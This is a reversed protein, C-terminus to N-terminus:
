NSLVDASQAPGGLYIGGPRAHPFRAEKYLTQAQVEADAMAKELFKGDYGLKRWVSERPYTLHPALTERDKQSLPEALVPSLARVQPWPADETLTAAFGMLREINEIPAQDRLPALDCVFRFEFVGLGHLWRNAFDAERENETLVVNVIGVGKAEPGRLQDRIPKLRQKFWDAFAWHTFSLYSEYRKSKPAFYFRFTQIAM